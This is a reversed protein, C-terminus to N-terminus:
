VEGLELCGGDGLKRAVGRGSVVKRSSNSVLIARYRYSICIILWWFSIWGRIEIINKRIQIMLFITKRFLSFKIEEYCHM